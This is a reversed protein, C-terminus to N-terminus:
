AHSTVTVDYTVTVKITHMFKKPEKRRQDAPYKFV